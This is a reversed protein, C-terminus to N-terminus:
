LHGTLDTQFGSSKHPVCFQNHVPLFAHAVIDMAADFLEFYEPYQGRRTQDLYKNTIKIGIVIFWCIIVPGGLTLIVPWIDKM